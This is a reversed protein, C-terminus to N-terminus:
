YALQRRLRQLATQKSPARRPAPRALVRKLAAAETFKKGKKAPKKKGKGKTKKAKKTKKAAKPSATRASAKKKPLLVAEIHPVVGGHAVTGHVLSNMEQDNLIALQVLRATIRKHKATRLYHVAVHLIEAIVYELLGALEVAASRSVRMKGPVTKKMYTHLRGVPFVLKSRGSRHGAEAVSVAFEALEGRMMMKAAALVPHHKSDGATLTNMKSGKAVEAAQTILRNALNLAIDNLAKKAKGSLSRGKEDEHAVRSIYIGFSMPRTRHHSKQATTM